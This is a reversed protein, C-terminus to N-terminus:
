DDYNFGGITLFDHFLTSDRVSVEMRSGAAVDQLQATENYVIVWKGAMERYTTWFNILSRLFRRRVDV